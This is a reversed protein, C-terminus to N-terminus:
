CELVEKRGTYIWIHLPAFSSSIESKIKDVYVDKYVVNTYFNSYTNRRSFLLLSSFPFGRWKIRDELELSFLLYDKLYPAFLYWTNKIKEIPAAIFSTCRFKLQFFTHVYLSCSCARTIPPKFNFHVCLYMYLIVCCLTQLGACFIVFITSNLFIFKNIECVVCFLRARNWSIRHSAIRLSSPIPHVLRNLKEWKRKRHWYRIGSFHYLPSSLHNCPIEGMVASSRGEKACLLQVLLVPSFWIDLLFKKRWM